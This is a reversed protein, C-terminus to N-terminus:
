KCDDEESLDAIRRAPPFSVLGDPRVICGYEELEAILEEAEWVSLSSVDGVPICINEICVYSGEKANNLKDRMDRADGYSYKETVYTDGAYTHIMAMLM